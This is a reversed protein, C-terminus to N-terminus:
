GLNYQHNKIKEYIKILIDKQSFINNIAVVMEAAEDDYQHSIDNSYDRLIKWEQVSDLIGVKELRNLIDIFTLKNIDEVFDSLILRFLKEGITDQLKSFRFLYQDINKVEDDSLSKYRSASVPFIHKLNGYSEIIRKVHKDCEHFYKEIKKDNSNLKVGQSLAVKEISREKDISVIVDIKQEGILEYLKLRFKSKKDITNESDLSHKLDIYLDIDGGRQSDDIRSGFLYIDGEKFVEKFTDKIAKKEYKTLRM